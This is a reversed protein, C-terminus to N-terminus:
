LPEYVIFPFEPNLKSVVDEEQDTPFTVEARKSSTVEM